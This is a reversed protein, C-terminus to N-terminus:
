RQRGMQVLEKFNKPHEAEEAEEAEEAVTVVSLDWTCGGPWGSAAVQSPCSAYRGPGEQSWLLRMRHCTYRIRFVLTCQLFCMCISVHSYHIEYHKISKQPHIPTGYSFPDCGDPDTVVCLEYVCRFVHLQIDNHM